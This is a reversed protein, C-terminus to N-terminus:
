RNFLLGESGWSLHWTRIHTNIFLVSCFHCFNGHGSSSDPGARTARGRGEHTYLSSTTSLCTVPSFAQPLPAGAASHSRSPVWPKKTSVSLAQFSLLVTCGHPFTARHSPSPRTMHAISSLAADWLTLQALSPWCPVASDVPFIGRGQRHQSSYVQEWVATCPSRQALGRWQLSSGEGWLTPPFHGKDSDWIWTGLFSLSEKFFPLFWEALSNSSSTGFSVQSGLLFLILFFVCLQRENAVDLRVPPEWALLSLEWFWPFAEEVTCGLATHVSWVGGM